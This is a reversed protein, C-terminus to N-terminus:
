RQRSRDRAPRLNKRMIPRSRSRRAVERFGAARYASTVGTWVFAPPADATRPEFPYGEVTMAGRKRAYELAAKLLAVSLGQRRHTRAVFLCTISWVPRDDVPALIRSGLLRPYDQRPALACWGVPADGDYALIGPETGSQVLDRLARQNRPGKDRAFERASRRWWMCWCGGCAGRPGFLQELDPWRPPTLPHFIYHRRSRPM